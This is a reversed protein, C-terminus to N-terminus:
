TSVLVHSSISRREPLACANLGRCASVPRPSKEAHWAFLCHAHRQKESGPQFMEPQRPQLTGARAEADPLQQPDDPVSV